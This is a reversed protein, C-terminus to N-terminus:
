CGNVPVFRFTSVNEFPIQFSPYVTGNIEMEPVVLIAETGEVSVSESPSCDYERDERRHSWLMKRNWSRGIMLSDIRCLVREKSGGPGQLIWVTVLPVRVTNGEPVVFKIWQHGPNINAQIRIGHYAMEAWDHSPEGCGRHMQTGEMATRYQDQVYPACGGILLTILLGPVIRM